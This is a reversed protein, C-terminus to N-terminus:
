LEDRVVGIGHPFFELGGNRLGGVDLLQALQTVFSLQGNARARCVYVQQFGHRVINVCPADFLYYLLELSLDFLNLRFHVSNYAAILRYEGVVVQQEGDGADAKDVGHGRYDRCAIESTELGSALIGLERTHCREGSLGASGNGFSIMHGLGAMVLYLGNKGLTSATGDGMVALDPCVIFSFFGLALAM